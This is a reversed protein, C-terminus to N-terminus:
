PLNAHRQTNKSSSLLLCGLGLGLRMAGRPGSVQARESTTSMVQYTNSRELAGFPVFLFPVAHQSM